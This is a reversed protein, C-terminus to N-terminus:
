LSLAAGRTGDARAAQWSPHLALALLVVFLWATAYFYLNLNQYAIAMTRSGLLAPAATGTVFTVALASQLAFRQVPAMGRILVGVLLAVPVYLASFHIRQTHLPFLLLGTMLLSFGLDRVLPLGANRRIAWATMLAAAGAVGLWIAFPLVSPADAAVRSGSLLGILSFNGPDNAKLNAFFWFGHLLRQNWQWGWFLAPGYALVVLVVLSAAIAAFRRTLFFLGLLALPTLKAAIALATGVASRAVLGREAGDFAIVMLFVAFLQFNGNRLEEVVYGATLLFAILAIDVARDPVGLRRAVIQAIAWLALIKLTFFALAAVPLPLLAFPTLLLAVVPSYRFNHEEVTRDGSYVAVPYIEYDGDLIYGGTQHYVSFDVPTSASKWGLVPLAVVLIAVGVRRWLRARSEKSM